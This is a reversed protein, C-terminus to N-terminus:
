RQVDAALLALAGTPVYPAVATVLDFRARAALSEDLDSVLAVVGNSRACAAARPDLDAGLM